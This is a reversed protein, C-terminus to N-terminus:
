VLRIRGTLLAQMMGQKLARTKALRAELAALEADMDALVTAIATQEEASPFAVTLSLFADKSINKMSGSTGTAKDQIRRKAERTSLLYCLWRVCVKTDTRFRTMWIRDPLFVAPYDEPVYGIEGVLDPTNMRSVLITDAVLSTRARHWESRVIPKSEAAFFQGDLMASTKLVSPRDASPVGEDSNVSVGSVLDGVVDGLNGERWAGEFGPLRQQGTLLAQLSGQKIQRKKALLRELSEILADADGLADAIAQQEASTPPVPIPLTEFKDKPLHAISTQTIYNQLVGSRSYRQLLNLMLAVNYGRKPRLRHLAKQYYCEDLLPYWIAARGVEGGECVM